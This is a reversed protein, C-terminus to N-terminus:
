EMPTKVGVESAFEKLQEPSMQELADNLVKLLLCQEIMEVSSSKNYNVKMKDCVDILVERYKM